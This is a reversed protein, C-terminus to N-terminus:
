LVFITKEHASLESYIADLQAQSEAYVKVTMSTYKNAKSSRLSFAGEGIQPFHKRTIMVVEGEFDTGTKAL